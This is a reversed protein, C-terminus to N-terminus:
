APRGSASSFKGGYSFENVQEFTLGSPLFTSLKGSELDLVELLYRSLEKGGELSERVYRLGEIGLEIEQMQNTM